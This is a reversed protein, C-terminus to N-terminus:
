KCYRECRGCQYDTVYSNIIHDCELVGEAYSWISLDRIFGEKAKVGMAIQNKNLMDVVEKFARESERKQCSDFENEKTPVPWMKNEEALVESSLALSLFILILDKM